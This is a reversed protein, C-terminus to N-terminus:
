SYITDNSFDYPTLDLVQLHVQQREKDTISEIFELNNGTTCQEDNSEVTVNNLYISLCVSLCVSLCISLYISIDVHLINYLVSPQFPLVGSTSIKM